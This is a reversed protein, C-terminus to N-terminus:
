MNQIFECKGPRKLRNIGGLIKVANINKHINGQKKLFNLGGSFSFRPIRREPEATFDKGSM